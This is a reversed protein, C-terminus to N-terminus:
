SEQKRRRVEMESARAKLNQELLLRILEDWASAQQYREAAKRYDSIAFIIQNEQEYRMARQMRIEVDEPNSDLMDSLREISLREPEVSSEESEEVIPTIRLDEDEVIEMTGVIAPMEESESDDLPIMEETGEEHILSMAAAQSPIPSHLVEESLLPIEDMLSLTDGSDELVKLSDDHSAAAVELASPSQINAEGVVEDKQESSVVSQSVQEKEAPTDQLPINPTKVMIDTADDGHEAEAPDSTDASDESLASTDEGGEAINEVDESASGVIESVPETSTDLAEDEGSENIDSITESPASTSSPISPAATTNTNERSQFKRVKKTPRRQVPKSVLLPITSEEATAETEEIYEPQEEKQSKSEEQVTEIYEEKAPDQGDAEDLDDWHLTTEPLQEQQTEGADEQETEQHESVSEAAEIVLEETDIKKASPAEVKPEIINPHEESLNQAGLQSGHIGSLERGLPIPILLKKLSDKRKEERRYLNLYWDQVRKEGDCFLISCVDEPPFNKVISQQLLQKARVIQILIDKEDM